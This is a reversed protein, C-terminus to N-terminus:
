FHKAKINSIGLHPWLKKTHKSTNTKNICNLLILEKNILGKFDQSLFSIRTKIM